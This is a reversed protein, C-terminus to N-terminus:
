NWEASTGNTKMYTVDYCGTRRFKVTGECITELYEKKAMDIWKETKWLKEMKKVTSM